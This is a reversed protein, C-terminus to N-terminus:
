HHVFFGYDRHRNLRFLGSSTLAQGLPKLFVRTKKHHGPGAQPRPDPTSVLDTELRTLRTGLRLRIRFGIYNAAKDKAWGRVCWALSFFIAVALTGARRVLESCCGLGTVWVYSNTPKNLWKNLVNFINSTEKPLDIARTYTATISMKCWMRM